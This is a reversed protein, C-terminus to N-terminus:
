IKAQKSQCQLVLYTISYLVLIYSLLIRSISPYQVFLQKLVATKSTHLFHSPTTWLSPTYDLDSERICCKLECHGSIWAFAVGDRASPASQHQLLT